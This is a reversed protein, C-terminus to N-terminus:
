RLVYLLQPRFTMQETPIQDYVLVPWIFILGQIIKKTFINKSFFVFTLIMTAFDSITLVM